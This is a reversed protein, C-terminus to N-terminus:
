VEGEAARAAAVVRCRVHRSGQALSALPKSSSRRLDREAGRAPIGNLADGHLALGKDGKFTMFGQPRVILVVLLHLDTVENFKGRAIIRLISPIDSDQDAIMAVAQPFDVDFALQM